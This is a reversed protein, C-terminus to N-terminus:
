VSVPRGGGEGPYGGGGFREDLAEYDVAFGKRPLADVFEVSRPKKYSAIRERCHAILEEAGATRGERLVVVAKVSQGWKRDPVGIVACDAVAAHTRLCGEVEAPYINEAASKLLRTKPGVFSVSGDPERRGLDHTHHWGGRQRERNLEDRGLYGNMVTPGRAVIEGVEGPAVERGEPDVLRLQVLPSPRGHSGGAGEGLAAFTLLGMTETQGYGGPRRGWPSTDPTTMASWEASGPLSRLSSLDWRGDRNADALQGVTPGMLFAITCREESVLRCLEEADVRPTFVNTGGWVFTALTTMLAAVHFLAGCNLYVSDRDVDQLRAVVLSQLLLATHSLLAGHPRGGFAGTYLQLLPLAPDVERGPDEPKAAALRGEYGADGGGDHGLWAAGSADAGRAEAATAGIEAEQWLVLRPAADRLVFGLEDASQRWNLPAFVAGLKAAALLAELLRHCNQGLWLIRDGDGVGEQRFVQALRNVREDLAPYLLREGGCVAAHQRPNSRRHERLVDGLGIAHLADM